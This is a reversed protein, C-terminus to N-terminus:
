PGMIRLLEMYSPRDQGKMRDSILDLMLGQLDLSAWM